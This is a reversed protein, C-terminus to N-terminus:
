EPYQRPQLACNEDVAPRAEGRNLAVLQHPAELRAVVEDQKGLAGATVAVADQGEFAGEQADGLIPRGVSGDSDLGHRDCVRAEVPHREATM